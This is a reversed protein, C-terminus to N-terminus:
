ARRPPRWASTGAMEALALILRALYLPEVPKRLIADFGSEFARARGHDEVDVSTAIAPIARGADGPLARVRRMFEYGDMKPMAVESVIAFPRTGQVLDLAEEGSEARLVRAGCDALGAALTERRDDDGDVVLVWRGSLLGTADDRLPPRRM